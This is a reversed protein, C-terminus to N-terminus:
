RRRRRSVLLVCLAFLPLSPAGTSACGGGGSGSEDVAGDAPGPASRGADRRPDADPESPSGPAADVPPEPAPGADMPPDLGADPGPAPAEVPIPDDYWSAELPCQEAAEGWEVTPDAYDLCGPCAAEMGARGWRLLCVGCRFAESGPPACHRCDAGVDEVFYGTPAGEMASWVDRFRRSAYTMGFQGEESCAVRGDATCVPGELNRGWSRAVERTGVIEPDLAMVFDGRTHAARARDSEVPIGGLSAPVGCLKGAVRACIGSGGASAAFTRAPHDAETLAWVLVAEAGHSCGYAGYDDGLIRSRAAGESALARAKAEIVQEMETETVTTRGGGECYPDVTVVVLGEATLPRLERPSTFDNACAAGGQIAMVLTCPAADTCVTPDWVTRTRVPVAFDLPTPTMEFVDEVCVMGEPCADPDRNFADQEADVTASERNAVILEDLWGDLGDGFRLLAEVEPLGGRAEVEVEPAFDLSVTARAPDEFVGRFTLHHWGGDDPWAVGTPLSEGGIEVVLEGGALRLAFAGAQRLIDGRTVDETRVWVHAIFRARRSWGTIEVAGGSLEAARGYRGADIATRRAGGIFRAEVEGGTEMNNLHPTADGDPGDDFTLEM